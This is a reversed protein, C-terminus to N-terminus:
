EVVKLYISAMDEVHLDRPTFEVSKPTSFAANEAVRRAFEDTRQEPEVKLRESIGVQALFDRVADPLDAGCQAGFLPALEAYDEECEPLCHELMHPEVVAVALGHPIHLMAGLAHALSHTGIACSNALALGGYMAGLAMGGRAALNSGDAVASRLNNVILRVGERAFLKGMETAARSIFCEICHGLADAGCIATLRAPAGAMLSPDILAVEPANLPSVITAKIGRGTDTLVAGLSMESGTGATTPVLVKPLTQQPERRNKNCMAYDWAEGDNTALLAVAKAVDLVSGGGIGIVLNAGERRALEAGSQAIEASPDPQVRFYRAVRVGADTLAREAEILPKEIGGARDYSVLLARDGLERGIEGIEALRGCGFLVKTRLQFDFWLGERL